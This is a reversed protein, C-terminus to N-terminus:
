QRPESFFVRLELLLDLVKGVHMNPLWKTEIMDFYREFIPINDNVNVLRVRVNTRLIKNPLTAIVEFDYVSQTEYDLDIRTYIQGTRPSITFDSTVTSLIYGM